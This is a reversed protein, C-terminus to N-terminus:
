LSWGTLARCAFIREQEKSAGTKTFHRQATPHAIASTESSFTVNVTLQETCSRHQSSSRASHMFVTTSFIRPYPSLSM